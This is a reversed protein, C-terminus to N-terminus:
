ALMRLRRIKKSIKDSQALIKSDSQKMMKCLKDVEKKVDEIDKLTVM